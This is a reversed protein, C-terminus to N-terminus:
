GTSSSPAGHTSVDERIIVWNNAIGVGTADIAKTDNMWVITNAFLPIPVRRGELELLLIASRNYQRISHILFLIFYDLILRTTARRLIGSLM